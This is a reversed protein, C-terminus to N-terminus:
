LTVEYSSLNQFNVFPLNIYFGLIVLKTVLSKLTRFRGKTQKTYKKDQPFTTNIYFM